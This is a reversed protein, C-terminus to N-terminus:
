VIVIQFRRNKGTAGDRHYQFRNLIDAVGFRAAIKVAANGVIMKILGKSFLSQHEVWMKVGAQRRAPKIFGQGPAPHLRRQQM